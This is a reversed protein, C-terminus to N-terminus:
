RETEKPLLFPYPRRRVRRQWARDLKRVRLLAEWLRADRRYYRQVAAASLPEDLHANAAALFAPLWRELRRKILNGCLDFYVGRLDRYGDLIRPALYRRLGARMFWPFAMSLPEVDLLPRGEASWLMPTSVDLYTLGEGDWIWNDLQADLGVRRSVTRAAADAVAAVLPHSTAPDARALLAPALTEQSLVPQVVYGVVSGDRRPVPRLRTEVVRVGVNRLAEVYAELTRDYADFRGRSPFAPLRKCAFAPAEPPWALVLSIEGYGLMPLAREEGASLAAEVRADLQELDADSLAPL